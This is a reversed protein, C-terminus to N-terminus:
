STLQRNKLFEPKIKTYTQNKLIADRLEGVNTPLRILSSSLRGILEDGLPSGRHPTSIFVVRSITPMPDFHTLKLLADRYEPKIDLRDPPVKFIANWVAEGSSSVAIRSLLGGMSHGILVTQSFTPDDAEPDFEEQIEALSTRLLAASKAISNGT